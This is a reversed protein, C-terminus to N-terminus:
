DDALAATARSLLDHVADAREAETMEQEELNVQEDDYNGNANLAESVRLMESVKELEDESLGNVVELIKKKHMEAAISRRANGSKFVSSAYSKADADPMRRSSFRSQSFVSRPNLSAQSPLKRMHSPTGIVKLSTRSKQFAALNKSSMHDHLNGRSGTSRTDLQENFREQKQPLSTHSNLNAPLQALRHRNSSALSPRSAYSVADAQFRAM